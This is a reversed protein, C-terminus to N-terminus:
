TLGLERVTAAFRGNPCVAAVAGLDAATDVDRLVPALGVTLGQGAFAKLTLEGTDAQSMPVAALVAGASPDRLALAWWGGDEALGLVADAASLGSVVQALLDASVQPTDMGILLSAAGAIATDALGNALRQALGDGRQAVIDWGAPVAIDGDLLLVKRHAPMATAADLTDALAAQAIRAAQLPTCPPCLRTKVRGRVPEKAIVM